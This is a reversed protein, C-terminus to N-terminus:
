EREVLFRVSKRQGEIELTLVYWGNTCSAPLNISADLEGYLTTISETLLVQGLANVIKCQIAQGKGNVSGKLHLEGNTPNPYYSFGSLLAHIDDLGVTITMKLNNSTVSAPVPCADSSTVTCTIDDGNALSSSSYTSTNTGVNNSNVKWQYNPSSGANSAIATFTVSQGANVTTGPNASISVTPNTSPLITMTLANSVLTTPLACALSSTLDCTIIDGNVLGTAIYSSSNSGVNSGNKKWQYMPSAGGFLTSALFTVQTGDCVSTGPTASITISPNVSSNVMIAMSNSVVNLVSACSANSTLECTIIDGNLLGADTYTTTNTGVPNGNKKWQYMPTTGGFSTTATFTVSTGTCITNGPNATISIGPTVNNYITMTIANSTDTTTSACLPSTNIILTVVDGNSLGNTTFTSATSLTALGNKKWLYSISSGANTVVSTFTANTGACLTDSPSVSITASPTLTPNVTMTITNSTDGVVTVCAIASTLVCSIIDGNVLANDNYTAANTGVPLGNKLWQYMPSSGGNIPTATYIVNVGACITTGTNAAITVSPTVPNSVTMTIVNSIVSTATKCIESSTLECSITNGNVLANDTYTSSNTGVNSGNKKWQYIPSSGGFTTTATFTASGGVCISNGPNATISITPTLMPNVVVGIANSMTIAPLACSSSTTLQCSVIDGNSLGSFTASPSNLNQAISNIYWNYIPTPGGNIVNSTFTISQNACITNSGTTTISISSTAGAGVSLTMASSYVDNTQNSVKCRYQYGNMSLTCNMILLSSTNAGIYQLSNNVANWGSGTNVEWTFTNAPSSTVTFTANDNTCVQQGNSQATITPAIAAQQGVIYSGNLQNFDMYSIISDQLQAYPLENMWNTNVQHAMYFNQAQAGADKDTSNWKLVMKAVGSTFQIGNLSEMEYYRNVSLNPNISSGAIQPHDGSHGRMRIAGISQIHQTSFGGFDIAVRSAMTADGIPFDYRGNASINLQLRSSIWGNTAAPSYFLGIVTSDDDLTVKGNTLTLLGSYRLNGMNFHVGNASSNNVLLNMFEATAVNSNKIAGYSIVQQPITVPGAGNEFRVTNGTVWTAGTDVWVNGGISLAYSNLSFYANPNLLSLTGNITGNTALYVNRNTGAASGVITLDGVGGSNLQIQFGTSTGSITSAPDGIVLTHGPSFKGGNFVSQGYNFAPDPIVIRGGNANVTPATITAWTGSANNFSTNSNADIWVTGGNQLYTGVTKYLSGNIELFGSNVELTDRSEFWRNYGGSPGLIVNGGNLQFHGQSYVLSDVRLTDNTIQLHSGAELYLNHVHESSNMTVTNGTSIYVTQASTPVANINWTAPNNWNGNAVSYVMNSSSASSYGIYFSSGTLDAVSLGNREAFTIAASTSGNVHNGVVSNANMLRNTTVPGYLSMAEAGVKIGISGNALLGNGTIFSWYSNTRDTITFAGDAVSLSGTMGSVATHRVGITGATSLASSSSFYLYVMRNHSGDSVPFALTPSTPLSIIPYWRSFYGTTSVIYGASYNLTGTQTGSTGLTLTNAGVNINGSTMTLVSPVTRNFPLTLTNGAGLKVEVQQPPSTVPFSNADATVNAAVEYVLKTATGDFSMPISGAFPIAAATQISVTSNARIKYVPNTAFYGTGTFHVGFPNQIKYHVRGSISSDNCTFEQQANQGNFVFSPMNTTLVEIVGGTKILSDSIQYLTTAYFRGNSLKFKKTKITFISLTSIGTSVISFQNRVSDLNKNGWTVSGTQNVCNYTVNYFPQDTGYTNVVYNPALSTFGLIKVESGDEWKAYPYYGFENTYLHEYVGFVKLTSDGSVFPSLYGLGGSAIVGTTSVTAVCNTLDVQVSGITNRIELRGHITAKNGNGSFKIKFNNGYVYLSSGNDISLESTSTDVDSQIYYLQNSTYPNLKVQTNNQVSLRGITENPINSVSDVLGNNFVLRDSSAISTRNPTWNAAVQYDTNVSGNWVYTNVSPALGNDFGTIARNHLPYTASSIANGSQLSNSLPYGPYAAWTSGNWANLDMASSFNDASIGKCEITYNYTSTLTDTFLWYRSLPNSAVVNPHVADKVQLGIYRDSPNNSINFIVPSFEDGGNIDGLPFIQTIAGSALKIWLKGSGNTAIMQTASASNWLGQNINVDLSLDYNDLVVVGASVDFTGPMYRSGPMHLRNNPSPSQLSISIYSPGNVVPWETNTITHESSHVFHLTGFGAYSFLGPGTVSGGSLYLDSNSILSIAGTFYTGLANSLILNGSGDVTFPGGCTLQQPALGQMTLAGMVMTTDQATSVFNGMIVNSSWFTVKGTDVIVDDYFTSTWLTLNGKHMITTGIVEVTSLTLGGSGIQTLTFNGKIKDLSSPLTFSIACNPSNIILNGVETPSAYMTPADSIINNLRLTSTADYIAKPIFCSDRNLNLNSNALFQITDANCTSCTSYFWANSSNVNVIGSVKTVSYKADFTSQDTLTITGDLTALSQGNSNFALKLPYSGNMLLSSGYQITFHHDITLTANSLSQMTVQTNNKIEFVSLSQGAVNTVTVTGGQSFLLTDLANTFTRAPQWNLATTFDASGSVPQWTYKQPGQTQISASIPNSTNYVPAGFCVGDNLAFVTYTYWTTPSLSSNNLSTGSATSVVIGNGLTAGNAYTVGNVPLTNLPVNPTRVILYKSAAPSSATFSGSVSTTSSSLVLNSPGNPTTCSPPPTFVYTQGWSPNSGGSYVINAMSSTGSTTASWSSSSSSRCNYSVNSTGRLGLQVSINSGINLSITGYVIEIQNTTEYLKIQFSADLVTYGPRGMHTWQATFVRNPATGTTQYSLETNANLSGLDNDFGSIVRFGTAGSNIMWYGTGPDTSGLSIYGNMGVYVSTFSVNDMIFSFPLSVQYRENDLGSGSALVNPSSLSSYIGSNQSFTYNPIFQAKLWTSSMVFLLLIGIFKM